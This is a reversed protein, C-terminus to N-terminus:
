RIIFRGKSNAAAEKLPKTIKNPRTLKLIYKRGTNLAHQVGDKIQTSYHQVYSDNAKMESLTRKTSKDAIRDLGSVPGEYRERGAKKGAKNAAEWGDGKINPGKGGKLKVPCATNHVLVEAKSVYYTHFDAVEFNHVTTRKAILTINTIAIKKGKYTVVSDGVSLEGVRLWKGAIFFPHDSTANIIESGINIQYVTDRIYEFVHLVKKASYVGTTDNYALVIDGPKIDEINKYGSETLVKTGAVFCGCPPHKVLKKGIKVVEDIVNGEKSLRGIQKVTTKIVGRAASSGGLTAVDAVLGAVGVVVQLGDGNKIGQYIDKLPGVVPLFDTVIDAAKMLAGGVKSLTGLWSSAKAAKSVAHGIIIVESLGTGASMMASAGSTSAVVEVFGKVATGGELGDIDINAIPDNSAYQYPTMVAYDDALPDLQVFRGIQADYNRFGYDYWNLEGDDYLEKDNYQYDNKLIGEGANGLKKSSIAAIKLGFSYYHNEEIINGAAVSVKFDDFYVHQDSRNSVYVYVYGNKPAKTSALILPVTSTTWSSAVQTQVVGGDTAAIFNFREDFFLMTLYAQPAAAVGTPTVANVFGPTATLGSNIGTVGDKVLGSTSGSGSISAILSGLVNTLM